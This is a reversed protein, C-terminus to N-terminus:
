QHRIVKHYSDAKYLSSACTFNVVSTIHQFYNYILTDYKTKQLM